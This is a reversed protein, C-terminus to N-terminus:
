IQTHSFEELAEFRKCYKKLLESITSVRDRHTPRQIAPAPVEWPRRDSIHSRCKFQDRKTESLTELLKGVRESSDKQISKFQIETSSKTSQMPNRQRETVIPSIEKSVNTFVTLEGPVTEYKKEYEQSAKVSEQSMAVNQKYVNDSGAAEEEYLFEGINSVSNRHIGNEDQRVESTNNKQRSESAHSNHVGTWLKKFSHPPRELSLQRPKVSEKTSKKIPNRPNNIFLHPPQELERAGEEVNSFTQERANCVFLGSLCGGEIKELPKWRIVPTSSNFGRYSVFTIVEFLNELFAICSSANSPEVRIMLLTIYQLFVYNLQYARYRKWAIDTILRRVDERSIEEESGGVNPFESICSNTTMVKMLRAQLRSFHRLTVSKSGQLLVKWFKDATARLKKDELLKGQENEDPANIPESKGKCGLGESMSSPNHLDLRANTSLIQRKRGYQEQEMQTTFVKSQASLNVLLSSPRLEHLELKAPTQEQWNTSREKPEHYSIDINKVQHTTTSFYPKSKIKKWHFFKRLRKEPPDQHKVTSIKSEPLWSKKAHQVIADFEEM